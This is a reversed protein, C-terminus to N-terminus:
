ERSMDEGRALEEEDEVLELEDSGDTSPNFFREGSIKRSFSGAVLSSTKSSLPGSYELGCVAIFLGLVVDDRSINMELEGSDVDPM